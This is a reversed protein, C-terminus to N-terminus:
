TAPLARPSTAIVVQVREGAALGLRQVALDAAQMERATLYATRRWRRRPSAGPVWPRRLVALLAPLSRRPRNHDVVFVVGGPVLARRVEALLGARMGPVPDHGVFSV